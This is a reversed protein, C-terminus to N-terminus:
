DAEDGDEEITLERFKELYDLGLMREIAEAREAPSYGDKLLKLVQDVSVLPSGDADCQSTLMGLDPHYMCLTGLWEYKPDEHIDFVCGLDKLIEALEETGGCRFQDDTFSVENDLMRDVDAVQWVRYRTSWDQGFGWETLILALDAKNEDPVSHIFGSFGTHDSM